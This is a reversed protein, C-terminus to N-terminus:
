CFVVALIASILTLGSGTTQSQNTRHVLHLAWSHESQWDCRFIHTSCPDPESPSQRWSNTHMGTSAVGRAHLSAGNFIKQCTNGIAMLFLDLIITSRSKVHWSVLMLGRWSCPPRAKGSRVEASALDGFLEVTM